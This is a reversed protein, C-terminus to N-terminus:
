NTLYTSLDWQKKAMDETRAQEGAKEIHCDEFYDVTVGNVQPNMM